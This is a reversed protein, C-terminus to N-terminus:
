DRGGPQPKGALFDSGEFWNWCDSGLPTWLPLRDSPCWEKLGLRDMFKVWKPAHLVPKSPIALVHNMGIYKPETCINGTEAKGPLSRPLWDFTKSNYEKKKKKPTIKVNHTVPFKKCLFAFAPSIKHPGLHCSRSGSHCSLWDSYGLHVVSPQHEHHRLKWSLLEKSSAVIFCLHWRRCCCAQTLPCPCGAPLLIACGLVTSLSVYQIEVPWIWGVPGDM